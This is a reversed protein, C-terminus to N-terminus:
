STVQGIQQPTWQVHQPYYVELLYLGAAPATQGASRRDKALLVETVWDPPRRGHGVQVLTGAINRVMNYLFGDAEVEIHVDWGDMAPRANILIERVNRQTSLRPSGRTQFSAFDRTGLLHQAAQRMREVDLSRPTWWHFQKRLPDSIRSSYIQYRYRKGICDRIPHFTLPVEQCHRVVIDRPLHTNLALTLHEATARWLNSKFAVVQGLAHVGTDTRSSARAVITSHGILRCIAGEVEAQISPHGAQRQWGCYASGDYALTLKFARLDDDVSDAAASVSDTASVRAYDEPPCM